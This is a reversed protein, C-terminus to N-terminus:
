HGHGHGTEEYGEPLANTEANHFLSKNGDGWPFQKTRIRLHTYPVFEPQHHHAKHEMEGKYANIMCFTVGPVVGIITLIKWTKASGHDASGAALGVQEGSAASLRLPATSFRRIATRLMAM